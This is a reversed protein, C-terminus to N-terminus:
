LPTISTSIENAFGSTSEKGLFLSSSVQLTTSLLDNERGRSLIVSRGEDETNVVLVVVGGLVNNGVSRASGVTKSGNSLDEVFLESNSFTEHGSDM